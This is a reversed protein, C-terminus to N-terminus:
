SSYPGSCVSIFSATILSEFPTYSGVQNNGIFYLHIIVMNVLLRNLCYRKRVLVCVIVCQGVKEDAHEHIM